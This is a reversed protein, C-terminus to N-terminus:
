YCHKRTVCVSTVVIVPLVYTSPVSVFNHRKESVLARRAEQLSQISCASGVIESSARGGEAIDTAIRDKIQRVPEVIPRKRRNAPPAPTVRPTVAVFLPTIRRPLPTIRRPFPPSADPIRRDPEERTMKDAPLQMTAGGRTIKRPGKRGGRKTPSCYDTVMTPRLPLLSQGFSTIVVTHYLHHWAENRTAVRYCGSHLPLAQKRKSLTPTVTRELSPPYKLGRPYCLIPHPM